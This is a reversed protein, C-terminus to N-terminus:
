PRRPVRRARRRFGRVKAKNGCSAMSCWRRRGARSSDLVLIACGEGCCARIRTAAPGGIM